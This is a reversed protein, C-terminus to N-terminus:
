RLILTLGRVLRLKVSIIGGDCTVVAKYKDVKDGTLVVLDPKLELMSKRIFAATLPSLSEDDQFDSYNVIRFKGDEGFSLHADYAPNATNYAAFAATACGFLMVLTLLFALTNKM